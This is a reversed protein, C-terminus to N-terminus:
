RATGGVFTEIDACIEAAVEGAARDANIVIIRGPEAAALKLFGERVRVHFALSEKEIRDARGRGRARELGVEPALDLLYTRHPKVEGCALHHLTALIGQDMSRGAGQYALTSDAFRDSLVAKGEALAPLIREQIHQARAAAYLFLEAMSCMAGNDPNLLIQRICEGIATGGPERTLATAYGLNELHHKVNQIQTTKGCGEVGEFTIFIGNM